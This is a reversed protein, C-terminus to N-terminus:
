TSTWINIIYLDKNNCVERADLTDMLMLTFPTSPIQISPTENNPNLELSYSLVQLIDCMTWLVRQNWLLHPFRFFYLKTKYM